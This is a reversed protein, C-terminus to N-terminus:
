LVDIVALERQERDSDLLCGRYGACITSVKLSRGELVRELDAVTEDDLLQAGWLEVGEFGYREIKDFKEDFGGGSVMSDQCALKVM